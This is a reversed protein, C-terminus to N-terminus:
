GLLAATMIGGAFMAAVSVFSAWSFAALGSIGHGSTCGGAVRAGFAMLAGGFLAAAPAVFSVSSESSALTFSHAFVGSGATIGVVFLIAPTFLMSTGVKEIELVCRGLDEYARSVGVAHKTLVVVGAQAVGIMLGGTIPDFLSNQVANHNAPEFASILRLMLVCMVEWSLLVALPSLNFTGQVTLNVLRGSTLVFTADDIAPASVTVTKRTDRLRDLSPKVLIYALGGFIGGCITFVGSTLGTGVQTFVTGPCAGTMAM